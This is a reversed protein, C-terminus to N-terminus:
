RKLPVSLTNNPSPILIITTPIPSNSNIPIFLFSIIPYILTLSSLSTNMWEHFYVKFAIMLVIHTISDAIAVTIQPLEKM